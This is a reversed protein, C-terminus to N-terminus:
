YASVRRSAYVPPHTSPIGRIRLGAASKCKRWFELFDSRRPALSLLFFGLLHCLVMRDYMAARMMGEVNFPQFLIRVLRLSLPKRM